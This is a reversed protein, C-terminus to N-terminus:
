VKYIQCVSFLLDRLAECCHPQSNSEFKIFKVYQFCGLLHSIQLLSLQSNSEFKIFKVYQFCCANYHLIHSQLQSNSEFKIFKVYQFCSVGAGINM